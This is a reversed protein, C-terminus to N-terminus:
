LGAPVDAAPGARAPGLRDDQRRLHPGEQLPSIVYAELVHPGDVQRGHAVTDQEVELRLRLVDRGVLHQLVDELLHLLLARFQGHGCPSSLSRSVCWSCEDMRVFSMVRSMKVKRRPARIPTIAVALM